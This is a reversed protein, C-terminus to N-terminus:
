RFELVEVQLSMLDPNDKLDGTDGDPFECQPETALPALPQPHPHPVQAPVAEGVKRGDLVKGTDDALQGPFAGTHVKVVQGDVKAAQRFELVEVQLFELDPTDKLGGTDSKPFECQQDTALPAFPEPHPHLVQAPM